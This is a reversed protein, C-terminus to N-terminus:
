GCTIQAAHAACWFDPLKIPECLAAAFNSSPAALVAGLNPSVVRLPRCAAPVQSGRSTVPSQIAGLCKCRNAGVIKMLGQERGTEQRPFCLQCPRGEGKPRLHTATPLCPNLPM